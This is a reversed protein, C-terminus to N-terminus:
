KEVQTHPSRARLDEQGRRPVPELLATRHPQLGEGGLRPQALAPAAEQGRPGAGGQPGGRLLGRVLFLFYVIAQSEDCDYFSIFVPLPSM